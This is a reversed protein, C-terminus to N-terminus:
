QKQNTPKAFYLVTKYININYDTILIVCFIHVMQAICSVNKKDTAAISAKQLFSCFYIFLLINSYKYVM